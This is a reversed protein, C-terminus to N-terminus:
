FFINDREEKSMKLFSTLKYQKGDIYIYNQGSGMSEGEYKRWFVRSNDSRALFHYSSVSDRSFKAFIVHVLKMDYESLIEQIKDSNKKQQLFDVEEIPGEYSYLDSRDLPSKVKVNETIQIYM